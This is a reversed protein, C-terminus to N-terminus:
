ASAVTSHAAGFDSQLLGDFGWRQAVVGSLLSKDQCSYVDNVRAYGCMLGQAAGKTLTQQFPPLYIEHLTRTSVISDDSPLRRGTEQSYATFRKVEAIVGRTSQIGLTEATGLGATLYPDESLSEFARGDQPERVINVDPAEVVNAGLDAAEQGILTGYQRALTTNFSAALSVPAPLATAKQQAPDDGAGVGAPGNTISLAPIGLSKIGPVYRQHDKGTIGHLETIKQDLTMRAVLAGARAQWSGAAASGIAATGVAPAATQGQSSRAWVVGVIVLVAALGAIELPVKRRKRSAARAHKPRRAPRM